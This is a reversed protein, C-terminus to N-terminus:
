RLRCIVDVWDFNVRQCRSLDNRTLIVFIHKSFATKNSVQDAYVPTLINSRTQWIRDYWIIRDHNTHELPISTEWQNILIFAIPFFLCFKSRQRQKTKAKQREHRAKKCLIFYYFFECVNQCMQLYNSLAIVIFGNQLSWATDRWICLM